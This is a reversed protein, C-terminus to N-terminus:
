SNRFATSGFAGPQMMRSTRIGSQAAELQLDRQSSRATVNRDDEHRCVRLNRVRDAGDLAAGHVEQDLRDIAVDQERPPARAPEPRWRGTARARSCLRRLRYSRSVGRSRWTKRWKILPCSLLCTAASRSMVSRVM